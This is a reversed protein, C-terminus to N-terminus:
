INENVEFILFFLFLFFSKFLCNLSVLITEFFIKLFDDILENEDMQYSYYTKKFFVDLNCIIIACFFIKLVLLGTFWKHLLNYFRRYIWCMIVWGSTITALFVFLFYNISYLYDKPFFQNSNNYDIEVKIEFNNRESEALIKLIESVSKSDIFFYPRKMNQLNEATFDSTKYNEFKSDVGVLLCNYYIKYYNMANLDILRNALYQNKILLIVNADYIKGTNPTINKKALLSFIDQESLITTIHGELSFDIIQRNKLISFPEQFSANFIKLLKTDNLTQNTVKESITFLKVSTNNLIQLTEKSNQNDNSNSKNNNIELNEPKINLFQELKDTLSYMEKQFKFFIEDMQYETKYNSGSDENNNITDLIKPMGIVSFTTLDNISEEDINFEKYKDLYNLAISTINAKKQKIEAQKSSMKSLIDKNFLKKFNQFDSLISDFPNKNKMKKEVAILDQFIQQIENIENLGKQIDQSNIYFINTTILIILLNICLAYKKPKIVLFYKLLFKSM